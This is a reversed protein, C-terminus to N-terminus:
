VTSEIWTLGVPPRTISPLPDEQDAKCEMALASASIFMLISAFLDIGGAM